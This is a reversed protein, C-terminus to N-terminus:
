RTFKGAVIKSLEFGIGAGGGILAGMAAITPPIVENLTVQQITTLLYLASVYAVAFIAAWFVFKGFRMSTYLRHTMISLKTATIISVVHVTDRIVLTPTQSKTTLLVGVYSIIALLILQWKKAVPITAAFMAVILGSMIFNFYILKPQFIKSGFVAYGIGVVCLYCLVLRLGALQLDSQKM